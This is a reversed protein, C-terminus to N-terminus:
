LINFVYKNFLELCIRWFITYFEHANAHVLPIPPQLKAGGTMIPPMVRTKAGGRPFDQACAQIYLALVWIGWFCNKVNKGNDM